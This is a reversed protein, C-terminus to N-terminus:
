RTSGPPQELSLPKGVPLRRRAGHRQHRRRGLHVLGRRRHRRRRYGGAKILDTNSTSTARHDLAPSTVELTFFVAFVAKSVFLSWLCCTPTSSSSRWRSGPSTTASSSRRRSSEAVVLEVYLGCRDLLRRLHLLRHRRLRQPQPVGVHRGAAPGRRRLRPCLGLLRRHGPDVQCQLRLVPVHDPRLRGSGLPAPDAVPPTGQHRRRAMRRAAMQLRQRVTTDDKIAM